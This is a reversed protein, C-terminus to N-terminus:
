VTSYYLLSSYFIPTYLVVGQFQGVYIYIFIMLVVSVIVATMIDVDIACM